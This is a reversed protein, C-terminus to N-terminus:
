SLDTASKFFFADLVVVTYSTVKEKASKNVTLSVAVSGGCSSPCLMFEGLFKANSAVKM